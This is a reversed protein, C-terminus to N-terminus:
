RGQEQETEPSVFYEPKQEAYIETGGLGQQFFRVAKECSPGVYGEAEIRVKGKEIRIRVQAM